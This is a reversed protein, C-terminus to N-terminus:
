LIQLGPEAQEEKAHHYM